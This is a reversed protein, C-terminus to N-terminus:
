KFVFIAPLTVNQLWFLNAFSITEIKSDVRDIVKGCSNAAIVIYRPPQYVGDNQSLRWYNSQKV